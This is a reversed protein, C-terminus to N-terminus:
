ALDLCDEEIVLDEPILWSESLNASRMLRNTDNHYWPEDYRVTWSHTLTGGTERLRESVRQTVVGRGEYQRFYKREIPIEIRVRIGPKIVPEVVV